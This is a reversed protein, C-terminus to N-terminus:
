ESILTGSPSKSMGLLKQLLIDRIQPDKMLETLVAATGSAAPKEKEPEKVLQSGCSSCFKAGPANGSNCAKCVSSAPNNSEPKDVIKKGYTELVADDVDRGSLHVYVGAMDSGQVWGFHEKMQAETLKNALATARSHRFSHPNVRKTIGADKAINVILKRASVYGMPYIDQSGRRLNRLWVYAEPNDRHPHRELWASLLPVSSVIRIRRDGTKGTVRLIAGANDFVVNKMQITLFESIRSGSEYLGAVFAKNRPHIAMDTMKTIDEVTLLEEPLKCRDNKIRCRFWRVEPPYSEDNCKLWKYFRKIAVKRDVKSWETIKEQEVGGVVRIMDEKTAEPYPKGLAKSLWRLQNFYKYRREHKLGLGVIYRDFEFILKKNEPIIKEDREIAKRAWELRGSINHVDFKTLNM